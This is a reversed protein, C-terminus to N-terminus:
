GPYGWLISKLAVGLRGMLGLREVDAGASLPIVLTERGPAMVKLVAIKEGAKIPAPIPGKFAVTVKMKQRSKRSLTIKVDQEIILPVTAEKGFWVDAIDVEAGKKFLAYNDFERFGWELL